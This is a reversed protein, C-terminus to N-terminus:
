SNTCKVRMEEITETITRRDISGNVFPMGIRKLLVFHLIGNKRKKDGQMREYLREADFAAPISVPLGLAGALAEIRRRESAGLHGKKESIRAAAIMGLAVANGHSLSYGSEAELAHGLTHGFNLMRRMGRDHEDIEVIGKKIKCAREVLSQIYDIDRAGIKGIDNELSSFLEEDDIIGYKVIEALGDKMQTEPLNQLFTLDIVVLRPQYITGLLNKGEPLDVGTKGGVSSDVQALLTTPVHIYPVSRMYLSATFGVIDGTVGGGLAILTTDRDARIEILQRAISIVTEPTKSTEGAAFEIMDVTLGADKLIGRVTDGFLGAVTSDAIVVYRGEPNGKALVLAARDMIGNGILIDYSHNMEHTLSLKM